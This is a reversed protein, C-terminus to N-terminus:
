RTHFKVLFMKSEWLKEGLGWLNRFIQLLTASFTLFNSTEFKVTKFKYMELNFLLDLSVRLHGVKYSIERPVNEVGM